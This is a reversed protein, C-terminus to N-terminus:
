AEQKQNQGAKVLQEKLETIEQEKSEMATKKERTYMEITSQIEEDKAKLTQQYNERQKIMNTTFNRIEDNQSQLARQM